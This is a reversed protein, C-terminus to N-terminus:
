DIQQYKVLTEPVSPVKGHQHLQGSERPVTELKMDRNVAGDGWWDSAGGAFYSILFTLFMDLYERFSSGVQSKQHQKLLLKNWQLGLNQQSCARKMRPVVEEMLRGPFFTATVLGASAMESATLGKSMLLMAALAGGLGSTFQPLTASAGGEPIQGLRCLNSLKFITLSLTM